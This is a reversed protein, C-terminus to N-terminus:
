NCETVESYLNIIQLVKAGYITSFWQLNVKFYIYRGHPDKCVFSDSIVGRFCPHVYKFFLLMHPALFSVHLNKWM